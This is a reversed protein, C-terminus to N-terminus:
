IRSSKFSRTYHLELEDVTKNQSHNVRLLNRYKSKLTMQMGRILRFKERAEKYLAEMRVTLAPSPTKEGSLKTCLTRFEDYSNKLWGLEMEIKDELSRVYASIQPNEM